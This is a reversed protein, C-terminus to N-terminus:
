FLTTKALGSLAMKMQSFSLIDRRSRILNFTHINQLVCSVGWCFGVSGLKKIAPDAKIGKLFAEIKPKTVAERHRFLWPAYEAGMVFTDKVKETLSKSDLERNKPAGM